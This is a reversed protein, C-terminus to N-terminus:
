TTRDFFEAMDQMCRQQYQPLVDFQHGAGDYVILENPAGVEDLRRHFEAIMPLPTIPDDSGTITRIPPAKASVYSQPSSEEYGAGGLFDDVVDQIGFQGGPARMDTMPYLLLAAAVNSPVDPNGGSGEFAGPALAIMASLHGGASGGAVAIREPDVGLASANARLWRVSCKADELAAPWRAESVLRYSISAAVYGRSAMDAAHRAHLLPDGGAWGGGHIFIVAPRSQDVRQPRYLHLTLERGGQGATGYVVEPEYTYGEPPDPPTLWDLMDAVTQGPQMELDRPLALMDKMWQGPM